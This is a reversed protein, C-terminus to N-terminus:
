NEKASKQNRSSLYGITREKAVDKIREVLQPTMPDKSVSYLFYLIPPLFVALLAFLIFYIGRIHDSRAEKGSRKINKNRKRQAEVVPVFIFALIFWAQYLIFTALRLCKRGILTLM